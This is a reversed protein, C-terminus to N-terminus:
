EEKHLKKLSEILGELVRIKEKVDPSGSNEGKSLGIIMNTLDNILQTFEVVESAYVTEKKLFEDAQRRLKTEYETSAEIYGEKKGAFKSHNENINQFHAVAAWGIAETLGAATGGKIAWGLFPIFNLLISAVFRGVFSAALGSLISKAVSESVRINFVAGLSIIMAIQTPTIMLTDAPGIPIIGMAGTAVSATHIIVNCKTEQDNTLTM